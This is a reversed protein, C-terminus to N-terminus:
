CDCAHQTLWLEFCSRWLFPTPREQWERIIYLVHTKVCTAGLRLWPQVLGHWCRSVQSSQNSSLLGYKQLCRLITSVEFLFFASCTAFYASMNEAIPVSGRRRIM